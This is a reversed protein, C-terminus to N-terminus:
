SDMPHVPDPREMAQGRKREKIALVKDRLAKAESYHGLFGHLLVLKHMTNLTDPHEL